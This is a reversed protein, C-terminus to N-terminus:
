TSNSGSSKRFHRMSLARRLSLSSSLPGEYRPPLGRGVVRARDLDEADLCGWRKLALALSVVDYPLGKSHVWVFKRSIRYPSTRTRPM